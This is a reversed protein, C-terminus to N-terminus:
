AKDGKLESIREDLYVEVDWKWMSSSLINSIDEKIKELLEIQAKKVSAKVYSDVLEPSPMTIPETM